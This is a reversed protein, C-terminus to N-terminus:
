FRCHTSVLRQDYRPQSGAAKSALLGLSGDAHSHQLKADVGYLTDFVCFGHSVTVAATTWIPDLASLNAQPVFRLTRLDSARGITPAALPLLVAGSSKLLARRSVVM